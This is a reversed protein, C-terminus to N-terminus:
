LELRQIVENAMEDASRVKGDYDPSIRIGDYKHRFWIMQRKAYHRTALKIEDAADNLSCEGRFYPEFEKYGIAQRATKSLGPTSLIRKAEEVLGSEIMMDVRMDIRRYLLERSAFDLIVTTNDYPTEGSIQERDTETKTKGTTKYVEIARIVRIVNNPHIAEAAEPDIEALKKHLAENGNLKAFEALDARLKDDRKGPSFSTLKMLADHYMGTGGCLIPLNGRSAIEDIVQGAIRAYDAASFEMDPTIIDFLHHPIGNQEEPTPTATGIDMGRYLQMSDCSVIEGSLKGALAIALGTKGSATPGLISITKIKKM